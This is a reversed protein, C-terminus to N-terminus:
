QRRTCQNDESDSGDNDSGNHQTVPRARRRHDAQVAGRIPEGSPAGVRRSARDVRLPTPTAWARTLLLAAVLLVTLGGDWWLGQRTGPVDLWAVATVTLALKNSLVALWVGRSVYPRLALVAFLVAFTAFGYGRWVEVFRTAPGAARVAPVAALAAVLAGVSCVALLGRGWRISPTTTRM